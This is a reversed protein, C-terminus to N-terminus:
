QVSSIERPISVPPTEERPPTSMRTTQSYPVSTSASRRDPYITVSMPPIKPNPTRTRCICPVLITPRLITLVLPTKKQTQVSMASPTVEVREAMRETRPSHLRRRPGVGDHALSSGPYQAAGYHADDLQSATMSPITSSEGRGVARVMPM